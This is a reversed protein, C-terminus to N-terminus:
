VRDFDLNVYETYQEVLSQWGERRLLELLVCCSDHGSNRAVRLADEYEDSEFGVGDTSNWLVKIVDLRGHAAAGLLATYGRVESPPGRLDAGLELLRAVIQTYGGIAACQLATGGDQRSPAANILAERELLMEVMEMSGIEAALQLPTRRLGCTAGANIDAGGDLLISVVSKHGGRIALQLATGGDRRSSTANVDAGRGILLSVIDDRGLEAARQLPTHWLGREAPANFNAGADLLMHVLKEKGASIAALLATDRNVTDVKDKWYTDHRSYVAHIGDLDAGLDLLRRLLDLQLSEEATPSYIAVGVPTFSSIWTEDTKGVPKSHCVMNPNVLGLDLLINPYEADPWHKEISLCFVESGERMKGRPYRKKLNRLLLRFMPLGIDMAASLAAVESPDAGWEMMLMSLRENGTRVSCVLSSDIQGCVLCDAVASAPPPHRLAQIIIEQPIGPPWHDHLDTRSITEIENTLQSHGCSWSCPLAPDAGLELLRHVLTEDGIKIAHKLTQNGNGSPSEAFLQLLTSNRLQVATKLGVSTIIHLRVLHDLVEFDGWIAAQKVADLLRFTELQCDLLARVVATNRRQLATELPTPSETHIMGSFGHLGEDILLIAIETAGIEIATTLPGSSIRGRVHRPRNDLVKRLYIVDGVECCALLVAEFAVNSYANYGRAEFKSAITVNRARIAEALPTTYYYRHSIKTRDEDSGIDLPSVSENIDAGAQMLQDIQDVQGAAAACSLLGKPPTPILKLLFCVLENNGREMAYILARGIDEDQFISCESRKCSKCRDALEFVVALASQSRLCCVIRSLVRSYSDYERCLWHCSFLLVLQEHKENIARYFTARCLVAGARLLEHIIPMLNALNHTNDTDSALRLLRGSTIKVKAGLLARVASLQRLKAAREIPTYRMNDVTFARDPDIVEQSLIYKIIDAEDAEIAARFLNQMLALKVPEPAHDLSRLLTRRLRTDPKLLNLIAQVPVMKLGAFGNLVGCIIMKYLVCGFNEDRRGLDTDIHQHNPNIVRLTEGLRNILAIQQGQAVTDTDSGPIGGNFM